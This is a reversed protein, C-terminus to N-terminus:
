TLGNIDREMEIAMEIQEQRKQELQQENEQGQQILFLNQEELMAFLDLLQQPDKFPVEYEDESDELIQRLKEKTKDLDFQVKKRKQYPKM